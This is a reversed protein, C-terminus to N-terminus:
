LERTRRDLARQWLEGRDTDFILKGDAPTTFWDHRKIEAELQGPGWGAYGLVFFYQKPGRHHGIDRLIDTTATMAVIHDITMTQARRYDPSHVVFGLQPEVPGGAYIEISGEVPGDKDPAKNSKDPSTDPSAAALLSAISKTELPRNIVLGFAGKADHRFLLIVAHSFRPDQIAASAILLQGAPPDVAPSDVVAPGTPAPGAAGLWFGAVLLFIAPILRSVRTARM